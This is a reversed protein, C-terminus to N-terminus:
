WLYLGSGLVSSENRFAYVEVVLWFLWKLVNRRNVVGIFTCPVQFPLAAPASVASLMVQLCILMLKVGHRCIYVAQTM